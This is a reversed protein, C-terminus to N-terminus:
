AVFILILQNTDHYKLKMSIEKPWLGLSAVETKCIQALTENEFDAM